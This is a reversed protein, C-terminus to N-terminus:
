WRRASRPRCRRCACRSRTAAPQPDQHPWGAPPAERGRGHPGLLKIRAMMANMVGMPMQYVPHLVGDIRFRIVGQTAGRSSISTARASTSPTSGSGTSWRCWARTTPTSSSTARASNSWNSSAPRASNEGSKQAARVSKALAFFETTYRQSARGPQRDRLRVRGSASHARGRRGLRHRVARLDRGDGRQTGGAGAAGQAARRLSSM